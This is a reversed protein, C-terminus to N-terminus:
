FVSELLWYFPGVPFLYGLTQHSVTGMGIHPDWMSGAGALFRGPDLYLYSKTDAEVKGPHMFLLPAYCLLVFAANGLRTRTRATFPLEDITGTETTPAASSQPEATTTM